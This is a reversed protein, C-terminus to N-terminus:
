RLDTARAGLEAAIQRELRAYLGRLRATLARAQALNGRQPQAELDNCVDGFSYAGVARASSKIRHAVAGARALDGSVLAVDIEALGERASDLFLFAFKRMKDRDEDFTAALAEIDLPGAGTAPQPAPPAPAPRPAQAARGLCRNLTAYLLDPAIPKTVFENMGAAMCRARDDVGANATMAIVLTDHLLPDSRIRRTAEFGDMVPMQVDM